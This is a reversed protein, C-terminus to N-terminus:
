ILMLFYILGYWKCFFDKERMLVARRDETCLRPNIYSFSLIDGESIKKIARYMLVDGDIVKSTYSCNPECSHSLKSGFYFLASRKNMSDTPNTVEAYGTNSGVFNHCNFNSIAILKYVDDISIESLLNKNDISIESKISNFSQVLFDRCEEFIPLNDLQFDRHYMDYLLERDNSSLELSKSVLEILSNYVILSKEKLVIDGINYEKTSVLVRGLEDHYSLVYGDTDTM